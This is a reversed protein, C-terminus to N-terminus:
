PILRTLIGLDPQYFSKLVEDAKAQDKELGGLGNAYCDALRKAAVQNMMLGAKQYLEVAKDLDKNESRGEYYMNGLYCIAEPSLLKAAKTMLEKGLTEDKEVQNGTCYIEALIYCATANNAEAAKTLLKVANKMNPKNYNKNSYVRAEVTQGIAKVSPDKSKQLEKADKLAQAFNGTEYSSMAKLYTLYPSGYLAGDTEFARKFTGGLNNRVALTFWKTALDYNMAVGDGEVLKMATQYEANVNGQQAALEMWKFGQAADKHVGEGDYYAKALYLRANAFGAEAAKQMVIMAQAADKKVGKGEALMKGYYFTCVVDGAQYGKKFYDAAEKAQKNNLLQLGLERCADVSGKEAAAAYYQSSKFVEKAKAYYRGLYVNAFKEGKKAEEDMRDILKTNGKKLSEDYLKIAMISDAEVGHGKQYCRAFNALAKNNGAKASRGFWQVATKYNQDYHRGLYYWTGVTNMAERDGEQAAKVIAQLSDTATQVDQKLAPAETQAKNKKGKPAGASTLPLSITVLAIALASILKKM